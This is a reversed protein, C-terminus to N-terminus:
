QSFAVAPSSGLYRAVLAEVEDNRARASDGGMVVVILSRGGSRASTVINYGSARIYGTKIGDVGTVRGLLDNHGRVNKGRFSFSTASFYAFKDPFRRRLAMGLVAMDRATTVQMPDHLGSANRFTTGSMGLQRARATMLAAFREESGGLYEGVAAAVDNASKTALARIATEVDIQEGARLRLKSPPQRAAHDSVPIMTSSTVRGSQMAEFLMYLTMMKTLSAPHRGATANVAYLTRGSNADVVLAAYRPSTNVSLVPAPEATRLTESTSCGGLLFAFLLACGM